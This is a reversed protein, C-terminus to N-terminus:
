DCPLYFHAYCNQCGNKQLDQSSCSSGISIQIRVTRKLVGRKKKNNNNNRGGSDTDEEESIEIKATTTGFVKRGNQVSCTESQSHPIAHHDSVEVGEQIASLTSKRNSSKPPSRAGSASKVSSRSINGTSQSNRSKIPVLRDITNSSNQLQQFHELSQARSRVNKIQPIKQIPFLKMDKTVIPALM